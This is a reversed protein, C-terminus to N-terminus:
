LFRNIYAPDAALKKAKRFIARAKNRKGDFWLEYARLFLLDPDKPHKDIVEELRKLQGLFHDDNKGYLTRVRFGSDPWDKKRDLGAEISEVADRYKALAFQAQALLFRALHDRPDALVAQRFRQAALGYLGDAFAKKGAAIPDVDADDDKPPPPLKVPKRVKKVPKDVKKVPPPLREPRKRRDKPLPKLTVPDTEDLDVGATEEELTRPQEARPPNVVITQPPPQYIINVNNVTTGPPALPTYFYPGIVATGYYGYASFGFRFRHHHRHRHGRFLFGGGYYSSPVYFQARAEATGALCLLLLAPWRAYAM